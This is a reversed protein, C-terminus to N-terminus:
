VVSSAPVGYEEAIESKREAALDIFLEGMSGYQKITQVLAQNNGYLVLRGRVTGFDLCVTFDGATQEPYKPRYDAYYASRTQTFYWGNKDSASTLINRRFEAFGIENLPKRM